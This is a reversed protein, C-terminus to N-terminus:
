ESVGRVAAIEARLRRLRSPAALGFARRYAEGADLRGQSASELARGLSDARAAETISRMEPEKEKHGRGEIRLPFRSRIRRGRGVYGATVSFGKYISATVATVFTVPDAYLRISVSYM